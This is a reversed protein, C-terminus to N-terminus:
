EGGKTTSAVPGVIPQWHTPRHRSGFTTYWDDSILSWMCLCLGPWALFSTGDRPATEIPQWDDATM